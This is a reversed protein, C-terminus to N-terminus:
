VIRAGGLLNSTTLAKNEQKLMYYQQAATLGQSVVWYILVGAYLKLSIFFMLFPMITNMTSMMNSQSGTDTKQMTKQSFYTTLAILIPLVYTKDVAALNTIWLFTGGKGAALLLKKFSTDMLTYFLAILFPMQVLLPLCGGLPNVNHEKYLAVMEKQLKEPSKKNREQIEKLKPQLKQMEKMSKFQKNTLPYFIAKVLVTLLIIAVGYNPFINEYFFKLLPLMIEKVLFTIPNM